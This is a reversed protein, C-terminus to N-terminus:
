DSGPLAFRSCVGVIQALGSSRVMASAEDFVIRAQDKKTAACYVHAGHEGDAFTLLLAIAAALTSKGNKRAVQVYARRFRRNGAADRWGFLNWVIFAQWPELDFPQGRWKGDSQKLMAFFRLARDAADNDFYLGREAGHEIDDLHRECALRMLEGCVTRGNATDWAFQHVTNHDVRVREATTM